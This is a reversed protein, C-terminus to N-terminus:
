MLQLAAIIGALDYPAVALQWRILDRPLRLPRRRIHHELAQVSIWPTRIRGQKVLRRRESQDILHSVVLWCLLGLCGRADRVAQFKGAVDPRGIGGYRYMLSTRLLCVRLEARLASARGWKTTLIAFALVLLCLAAVDPWNVGLVGM